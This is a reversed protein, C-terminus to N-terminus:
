MIWTLFIWYVYTWFDTM